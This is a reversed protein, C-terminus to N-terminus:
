GGFVSERSRYHDKPVVVPIEQLNFVKPSQTNQAIVWCVYRLSDGMHTLEPDSKDMRRPEGEEWRISELDRILNKCRPDIKLKPVNDAPALLGNIATVSEVVSPKRPGNLSRANPIHRFCRDMIDMDNYPVRVSRAVGAEDCMYLFEPVLKFKDKYRENVINCAQQTSANNRIYIEDIVWILGTSPDHQLIVGSYNQVNLDTSYYLNYDPVFGCPCVNKTRDFRFVQNSGMDTILGLVEQNFTDTDLREKLSIAFDPSLHKNEYTTWRHCTAGKIKDESLFKRWQWDKGNPTSTLRMKCPGNPVRLCALVVDFVEQALERSEDLWGFGLNLGRLNRDANGSQEFFSRLLIQSGNVISIVNTHNTFRSKYWPPQEGRVWQISCDDLLKTFQAVAVTNLQTINSAGILGITHPYEVAQQMCWVSGVYTKGGGRGTCALSLPAKDQFFKYQPKSLVISM